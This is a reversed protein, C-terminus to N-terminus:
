FFDKNKLKVAIIAIKSTVNNIEVGLDITFLTGLFLGGTIFYSSGGTGITFISL